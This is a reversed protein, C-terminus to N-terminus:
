IPLVSQWPNPSSQSKLVDSVSVIIQQNCEILWDIMNQLETAKDVVFTNCLLLTQPTWITFAM